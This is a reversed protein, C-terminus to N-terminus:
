LGFQDSNDFGTWCTIDEFEVGLDHLKKSLGYNLYDSSM